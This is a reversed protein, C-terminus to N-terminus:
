SLNKAGVPSLKGSKDPIKGIVNLQKCINARLGTEDPVLPALALGLFGSAQVFCLSTVPVHATILFM